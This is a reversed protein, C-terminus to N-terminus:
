FSDTQNFLKLTKSLKTYCEFTHKLGKHKYIFSVEQYIICVSLKLTLKATTFNLLLLLHIGIAIMKNLNFQWYVNLNLKSSYKLANQMCYSFGM